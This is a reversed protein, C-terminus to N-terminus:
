INQKPKVIMVSFYGLKKDKLSSLDRIIKENPHGVQTILVAKKILKLKKLLSIVRDLKPGIKMLVVTDFKRLAEKLGKLNHRVSLVALNENGKVLPIQAKAAAANFASIGPITEVKIDPFYQNLSQLLYIYTSYIFPDGITVFAVIKNNKIEQVIRKAAKLWYKELKKNINMPFILEIFKKPQLIVSEIISRASSSSVKDGKPVFIVDAIDLIEKAKITLLGADGPGIGIGYFKGIKNANCM